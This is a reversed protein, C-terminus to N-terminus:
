GFLEILLVLYERKLYIFVFIFCPVAAVLTYDLLTIALKDLDTLELIPDCAVSCSPIKSLSFSKM